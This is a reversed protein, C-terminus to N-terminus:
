RLNVATDSPYPSPPPRVKLTRYPCRWRFPHILDFAVQLSLDSDQALRAPLDADWGVVRFSSSLLRGPYRERVQGM